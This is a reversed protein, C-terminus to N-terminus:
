QSFVVSVSFKFASVPLNNKSVIAKVTKLMPHGLRSHWTQLSTREGVLASVRSIPLLTYLGETNLMGRLVVEWTKRDLLLLLFVVGTNSISLSSGGAIRIHDPVNYEYHTHLNSLDNTMHNTAGSDLLWDYAYAAPANSSPRRGRPANNKPQSRKDRPPYTM